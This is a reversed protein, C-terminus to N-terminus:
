TRSQSISPQVICGSQHWMYMQVCMPDLRNIGCCLTGRICQHDVEGPSSFLIGDAYDLFPIRRDDRLHDRLLRFLFRGTRNQCFAESRRGPHPINFPSAIRPFSACFVCSFTLSDTALQSVSSPNQSPLCFHHVASGPHRYGSTHPCSWL